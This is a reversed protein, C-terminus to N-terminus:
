KSRNTLKFTVEPNDQRLEAIVKKASEENLITAHFVNVVYKMESLDLMKFRKEGKEKASITYLKTM